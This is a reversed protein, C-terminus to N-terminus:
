YTSEDYADNLENLSTLEKDIAATEAAIEADFAAAEEALQANIATTVDEVTEPNAVPVAPRMDGGEVSQQEAVPVSPAMADKAVFQSYVVVFLIVAAVLGIAIPIIKKQDM